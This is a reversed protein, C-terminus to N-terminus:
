GVIVRCIGWTWERNVVNDLYIMGFNILWSPFHGYFKTWVQFPMNIITMSEIKDFVILTRSKLVISLDLWSVHDLKIRNSQKLFLWKRRMLKSYFILKPCMNCNEVCTWRQFSSDLFKLHFVQLFCYRLQLVKRLQVQRWGILYEILPSCPIYSLRKKLMFAQLQIKKKRSWNASDRKKRRNMKLLVAFFIKM